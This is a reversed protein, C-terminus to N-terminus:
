DDYDKEAKLIKGTEANIEYDYEVRDKEFEVEYKVVGDDRDKEAKLRSVQSETLGAHKLAIAKAEEM